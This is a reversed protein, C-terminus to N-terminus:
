TIFPDSNICADVAKSDLTAAMTGSGCPKFTYDKDQILGAQNLAYTLVVHTGSGQSTAGVTKGKLDKLSKVTDKLDARVVSAAVLLISAFAIGLPGTKMPRRGLAGPAAELALVRGRGVAARFGPDAGPRRHRRYRRVGWDLRLIGGGDRDAPGTRRQLRHIRRRGRGR